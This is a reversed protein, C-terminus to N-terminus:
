EFPYYQKLIDVLKKKFLQPCYKVITDVKKFRDKPLLITGQNHKLIEIEYKRFHGFHWPIKGNKIEEYTLTDKLGVLGHGRRLITVAKENDDYGAEAPTNIIKASEYSQKYYLIINEFAVLFAIMKNIIKQMEERTYIKKSSNGLNIRVEGKYVTFDAHFIANRLDKDFTEYFPFICNDISIKKSTKTLFKLKENPYIIKKNKGRFYNFPDLNYRFGLIINMLNAILKYPFNAEVALGYMWLMIYVTYEYYKVKKILKSFFHFINLIEEWPDWGAELIGKFDLIACIFEFENINKAKIFLPDICDLYEIIKEKLLLDIKRNKVEWKKEKNM